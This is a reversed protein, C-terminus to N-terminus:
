PAPTEPTPQDTTTAQATIGITAAFEVLKELYNETAPPITILGLHNAAILAVILAIAKIMLNRVSQWFCPTSGTLRKYLAVLTLKDTNM